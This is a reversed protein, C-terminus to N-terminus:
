ESKNTGYNKDEKIGNICFEVLKKYLNLQGEKDGLQIKEYLEYRLKNFQPLKKLFEANNDYFWKENSFTKLNLEAIETNEKM